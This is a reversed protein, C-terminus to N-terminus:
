QGNPCDPATETFILFFYSCYSNSVNWVYESLIINMPVRGFKFLWDTEPICRLLQSLFQEGM